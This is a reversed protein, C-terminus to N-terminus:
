VEAIIILSYYGDVITGEQGRGHRNRIKQVAKYLGFIIHAIIVIAVNGFLIM